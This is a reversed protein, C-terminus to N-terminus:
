FPSKFAALTPLAEDRASVIPAAEGLPWACGFSDYRVGADHAPAYESTVLYHVAAETYGPLAPVYFGHAVGPPLYLGKGNAASLEFGEFHGYTPGQRLDLAVDLVQGRSVYVLKAHQHPPLQLHMGRLVGPKSTTYYSERFQTQLGASEFVASHFMKVFSGRADHSAASQVIYVGPLTTPVLQM